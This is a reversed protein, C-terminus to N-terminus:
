GGDGYEIFRAIYFIDHLNYIKTDKGSDFRNGHLTGIRSNNDLVTRVSFRQEPKFLAIVEWRLFHYALQGIWTQYANYNVDDKKFPKRM